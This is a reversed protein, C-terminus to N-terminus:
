SKAVPAYMEAEVKGWNEYNDLIFDEPKLKYVIDVLDFKQNKVDTFLIEANTSFRLKPAKYQNDARDVMMTCQKIHGHYIHVNSLDGILTEFRYGTCAEIICGLLAYSAINFPLGLFTDVSRQHWKLAFKYGGRQGDEDIDPAVLVEFSWHCPPLAMNQLDKPNWATVIHRTGLPYKRLNTMLLNIQDIAYAFDRWQAGYIRGVYKENTDLHARKAFAEMDKDWIHVNHEHLFELNQEGRLFWLLETVVSKWVIKKSTLVPFSDKISAFEEANYILQDSYIQTRIQNRTEDRYDFGDLFINNIIKAYAKDIKAM